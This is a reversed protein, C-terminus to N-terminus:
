KGDRRAAAADMHEATVSGAAYKSRVQKWDTPMSRKRNANVEARMRDTLTGGAPRGDSLAEAQLKDDDLASFAMPMANRLWRVFDAPSISGRGPMAILGDGTMVSGALDIASQRMAHQDPQYGQRRAEMLVMDELHDTM